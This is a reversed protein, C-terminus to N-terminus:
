QQAGRSLPGLFFRFEPDPKSEPKIAWPMELFPNTLRTHVGGTRLETTEIQWISLPIDLHISWSSLSPALARFAKHQADEFGQAPFPATQIHSLFGKVNPFGTLLFGGDPTIAQILIQDADPDPPIHAPKTIALHSNGVLSGIVIQNEPQLAYGPRSFVFRVQYQGPLGKPGGVNVPHSPNVSSHPMAAIGGGEGAFGMGPIEFSLTGKPTPLSSTGPSSGSKPDNLGVKQM